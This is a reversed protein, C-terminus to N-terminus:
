KSEQVVRVAGKIPVEITEYGKYNTRFTLAAEYKGPISPPRIQFRVTYAKGPKVERINYTITEDSPTIELVRLSDGRSAIISLAKEFSKSTGESVLLEHMYISNPHVEVDDMVQVRLAIQKEPLKDFDTELVIDAFYQRPPLHKKMWTELKHKRGKELPTIKVGIAEELIEREKTKDSWHYGTIAIPTEVTSTVIVEDRPEENRYGTLSLGKSVEFIKQVNGSVYLIVKENEPDNTKVTFSKKFKGTPLKYGILKVNIRGESGPPIVEDYDAM